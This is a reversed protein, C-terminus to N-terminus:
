FKKGQMATYIFAGYLAMAGFWLLVGIALPVLTWLKAQKADNIAGPYDGLSYKSDVRAAYVVGVIGLFNCCFLTVLISPILWNDPKPPITSAQLDTPIYPTNEM